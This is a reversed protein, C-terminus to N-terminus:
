KSLQVNALRELLREIRERSLNAFALRLYDDQGPGFMSGALSLIEHQQALARGVATSTQGEFPHRVYAFYAGSSALEFGGPREKMGARFLEIRRMMRQRNKERWDHLAELGHLAARQGIHPACIAVCDMGKAMQFLLDPHAVLAGTRYGTISFVKSFSYLHVLTNAWDSRHFLAHPADTTERFDRYTEDVALTIGREACLDYFAELLEPPYCAGTPNNPTILVVARTRETLVAAADDPHPLMGARCPFYVPEIGQLRLWMDHNFYYPLALVVEDGPECLTSMLLCFAQNCGATIAIQDSRLDAGYLTTMEGALAERLPAIGLQDTYRSVSADLAAEGIAKQLEPPPPYGPVAQSVDLLSDSRHDPRAGLWGYAESIPSEPVQRIRNPINQTM